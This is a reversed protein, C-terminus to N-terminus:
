PKKEPSAKEQVKRDQLEKRWKAADEPKGLAESVAALSELTEM